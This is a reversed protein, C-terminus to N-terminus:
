KLDDVEQLGHPREHPLLLKGVTHTADLLQHARRFQLPLV